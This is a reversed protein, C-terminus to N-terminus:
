GCIYDTVTVTGCSEGGTKTTNHAFGNEDLGEVTANIYFTYTGGKEIEPASFLAGSFAKSSTFALIVNGKDDCLCLTTGATFYGSSSVLISGQTAETFNQAMSSTGLTIVIGGTIKASKGYDFSGNMSAQPGDVLVIGGSIEVTGNADIGDGENHMILYGGSIVISGVGSDFFDMGPRGSVGENADNGGAANMGDDTSNIEIYGDEILIDTAEIGEYSKNISINGGLICLTDDAHIGDDASSLVLTGGAVAVNGDSHIADDQSDISFTGGSIAIAGGAKIAKSSDTSLTSKTKLTFEGGEIYAVTFAQIADNNSTISLKGDKIYVFGRGAELENDSKIGDKGSNIRIDASTIKLCDKGCIGVGTSTIDYNGGTITLKDKSVIGHANNGVLTLSGEGNLVLDAKSFIAGDVNAGADTISYSQGDALTNSTGKALTLVVKKASKIHIVPGNENTISAGDLVIQVKSSADATVTVSGNQTSGSVVFVGNGSITVSSGNARAGSGNISATSGSFEIKTATAENYSFDLDKENFSADISSAIESIDISDITTNGNNGTQSGGDLRQDCSTVSFVMALLCTLAFLRLMSNKKIM